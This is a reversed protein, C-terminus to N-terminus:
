SPKRFRLAFKDTHGRVKPDFVELKPDDDTRHLVDTEGAYEFGAQEVQRKVLAPDIRHLRATQEISTGPAAQHDIVVYTGGPKLMAFVAKNLVSPDLSGM